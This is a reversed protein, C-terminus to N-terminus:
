SLAWKKKFSIAASTYGGETGDVFHIHNEKRDQVYCSMISAHTVHIGYIIQGKTELKDLYKILNTIQIEDGEMVTNISGDIMLTDSLQSVKNLYERGDKFFKFYYSGLGTILWNKLLYAANYKGIRAYMEKRIKSITTNLILRPTSIPQREEFDGFIEHIKELISAYVKNHKSEEVCSVLLCIVRKSEDRPQIEDWRCEMGTLNVGEASNRTKYTTAGKDKVLREAYHLGSGVVVPVTLYDNLRIKALKLKVKEAYIKKVSVEGVLLDLDLIKKIHVRYNELVTLVSEHIQQPILFTAGDGGFFYPIQYKKDLNKIENLVAIIAGAAALNVDNHQGQSVAQTSGSIDAVVVYWTDPVKVFLREDSLLSPLAIRHTPLNQYFRQTSKLM